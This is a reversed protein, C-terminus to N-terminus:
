STLQWDTSESPINLGAAAQTSRLFEAAANPTKHRGYETGNLVPVFELGDPLIEARAGNTEHIWRVM